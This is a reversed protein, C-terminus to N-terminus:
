APEPAGDSTSVPVVADTATTAEPDTTLPVPAPASEEGVTEPATVNKADTEKVVKTAKSAKRMLGTLLGQKPLPTTTGPKQASEAEESDSKVEEPKKKNFTFFSRRRPDKPSTAPIGPDIDPSDGAVAPKPEIPEEQTETPSECAETTKVDTEKEPLKVAPGKERKEVLRGFFHKPPSAAAAGSKGATSSEAIVDSAKPELTVTECPEPVESKADEKMEPVEKEKKEFLTGFISGRKPHKVVAAPEIPKEAEEASLTETAEITTDTSAEVAVAEPEIPKTGDAPAEEKDKGQEKKEETKKKKELFPFRATRRNRKSPSRSPEAKQDASTPEEDV